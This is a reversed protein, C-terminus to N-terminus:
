QQPYVRWTNLLANGSQRCEEQVNQPIVAYVWSKGTLQPEVLNAADCWASLASLVELRLKSDNNFAAAADCIYKRTWTEVVLWPIWMRNDVIIDFADDPLCAWQVIYGAQAEAELLLFVKRANPQELRMVPTLAHVVPMKDEPPVHVLEREALMCDHRWFTKHATGTRTTYEGATETRSVLVRPVLMSQNLLRLLRKYLTLHLSDNLSANSQYLSEVQERVLSVAGNGMRGELLAQFDKVWPLDLLSQLKANHKAAMAKAMSKKSQRRVEALDALYSDASNLWTAQLKAQTGRDNLTVSVVYKGSSFLLEYEASGSTALDDAINARYTKQGQSM